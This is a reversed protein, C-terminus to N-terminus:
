PWARASRQEAGNQPSWSRADSAVTRRRRVRQFRSRRRAAKRATGRPCGARRRRSRSAPPDAEPADEGELQFTVLAAGTLIVDGPGGHLKTIKGTHPAPVEVVAKATSMEVMADGETITDGEKVLWKVIEADPLGEGLDPLKFVTM